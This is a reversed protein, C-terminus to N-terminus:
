KVIRALGHVQGCRTCTTGLFFSGKEKYAMKSFEHERVLKGTEAERFLIAASDLGFDHDCGNPSPIASLVTEIREYWRPLPGAFEMLNRGPEGEAAPTYARATPLAAIVDDSVENDAVDLMHFGNQNASVKANYYQLLPDGSGVIRGAFLKLAEAAHSSSKSEFEPFLRARPHGVPGYPIVSPKRAVKM